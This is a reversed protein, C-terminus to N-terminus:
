SSKGLIAEKLHFEPAQLFGLKWLDYRWFYKSGLDLINVHIEELNRRLHTKKKLKQVKTSFFKYFFNWSSRNSAPFGQFGFSQYWINHFWSGFYFFLSILAKSILWKLPSVEKVNCLHVIRPHNLHSFRMKICLLGNMIYDQGVQCYYHLPVVM